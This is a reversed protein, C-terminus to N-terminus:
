TEVNWSTKIRSKAWDPIASNTRDANAVTLNLIGRFREIAYYKWEGFDRIGMLAQGESSLFQMFAIRLWEAAATQAEQAVRLPVQTEAERRATEVALDLRRLTESCKLWFDQTAAVEVPNGRALAAELRAHAREESAELRQLAAAAGKRGIPPLEGNGRSDCSTQPGASFPINHSEQDRRRKRAKSINTERITNRTVWEAVIKPDRLDCGQRVWRWLTPVSKGIKRAYEAIEIQSYPM